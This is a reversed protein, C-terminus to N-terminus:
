EKGNPTDDNAPSIVTKRFDDPLQVANERYRKLQRKKRSPASEEAM